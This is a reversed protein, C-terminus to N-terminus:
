EEDEQSHATATLWENLDKHPKVDFTKVWTAGAATLEATWKARARDGPADRHPFLWVGKGRFHPLAHPHISMGAGTMCVPAVTEVMEHWWSLSWAALTDPGGECLAIFPKIGIDAAGIPWTAQSGPLTKAKAEISKWPFGDFRRAQANRGSSDLLVWAKAVSGRDFMEAVRLQGARVAFELGELFPLKRLEALASLESVTPVRLAPLQPKPRVVEARFNHQPLPPFARVRLGALEAIERRHQKDGAYVTCGWKGRGEDFIVLHNGSRDTGAAACAPCQAEVKNGRRKLNNLRSLELRTDNEYM